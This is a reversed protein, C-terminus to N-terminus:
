SDLNIIAIHAGQKQGSTGLTIPTAYNEINVDCYGFVLFPLKIDMCYGNIANHTQKKNPICSSYTCDYAM